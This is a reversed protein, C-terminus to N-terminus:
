LVERIQVGDITVVIESRQLLWTGLIGGFGRVLVEETGHVRKTAATDLRQLLWKGRIGGFGGEVVVSLM